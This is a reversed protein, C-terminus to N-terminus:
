LLSLFFLSYFFSLFILSLLSWPLNSTGVPLWDKVCPLTGEGDERRRGTGGIKRGEREEEMGKGKRGTKMKERGGETEGERGGMGRGERRVRGEM